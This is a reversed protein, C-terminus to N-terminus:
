DKEMKDTCPGPQARSRSRALSSSLSTQPPNYFLRNERIFPLTVPLPLSESGKKGKGRPDCGYASTIGPAAAAIRHGHLLLGLPSFGGRQPLHLQLISACRTSPPTVSNCVM